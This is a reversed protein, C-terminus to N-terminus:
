RYNRVSRKLRLNNLVLLFTIGLLAASMLFILLIPLSLVVIPYGNFAQFATIGVLASYSLVGVIVFQTRKTESLNTFSLLLGLLPLVQAAHLALAHPVKMQGFLGITNSNNIIMVIGFVLSIVLLLMGSTITWRFITPAKLFFVSCLLVGLILPAHLGISIGMISFVVTDFPTSFNFHSPVGRWVQMTVLFVEVFTAVAYISSLIWWIVRKKPVFTLFWALSIATLGFAESFSIAKRFSVDGKLTGGTVILVVTHFIASALLLFGTFYLLKQYSEAEDWYKKLQERIIQALTENTSSVKSKALVQSM